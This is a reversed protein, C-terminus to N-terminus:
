KRSNRWVLTVEPMPNCSSVKVESFEIDTPIPRFTHFIVYSNNQGVAGGTEDLLVIAGDTATLQGKLCGKPYAESIKDLGAIVNEYKGMLNTIDVEISAGSNIASIPKNLKIIIAPETVNIPTPNIVTQSSFLMIKLLEWAGNLTDM